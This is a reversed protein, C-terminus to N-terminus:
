VLVVTAPAFREELRAPDFRGGKEPLLGFVYDFSRGVQELDPDLRVFDTGPTRLEVAIFGALALEQWSGVAITFVDQVFIGPQHTAVHHALQGGTGPLELVRHHPKIQHLGSPAFRTTVGLRQAQERVYPTTDTPSSGALAAFWGAVIDGRLRSLRGAEAGLVTRADFPVPAVVAADEALLELLAADGLRGRFRRWTAQDPELLRRPRRELQEERALSALVASAWRGADQATSDLAQIPLDPM